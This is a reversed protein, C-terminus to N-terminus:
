WSLGIMSIGEDSILFYRNRAMQFINRVTGEQIDGQFKLKGNLKYMEVQTGACLIIREGSLSISQYEMDFGQSSRERGSSDYLTMRYTSDQEEGDTVIGFYEENYFLSILQQGLPLLHLHNRLNGGSIQKLIARRSLFRM